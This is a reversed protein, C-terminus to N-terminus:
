KGAMSCLLVRSRLVHVIRYFSKCLERFIYGYTNGTRLGLTRKRDHMKGVYIKYETGFAVYQVLSSLCKEKGLCFLLTM